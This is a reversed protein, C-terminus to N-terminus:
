APLPVSHHKALAATLGAVQDACQAVRSQAEKLDAVATLLLLATRETFTTEREKM